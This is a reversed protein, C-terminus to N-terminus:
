LIPQMDKTTIIQKDPPYFIGDDQALRLTTFENMTRDPDIHTLALLSYLTIRTVCIFCIFIQVQQQTGLKCTCNYNIVNKEAVNTLVFLMILIRLDVNAPVFIQLLIRTRSSTPVYSNTCPGERTVICVSICPKRALMQIYLQM